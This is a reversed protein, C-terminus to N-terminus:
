LEEELLKLRRLEDRSNLMEKKRAIKEEKSLKAIEEKSLEYGTKIARLERYDKM